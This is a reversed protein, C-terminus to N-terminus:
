LDLHREPRMRIHLVRMILLTDDRDQYYINHSGVRTRRLPGIPHSYPTGSEPYRAIEALKADIDNAYEDRQAPGWHELTFHLIEAVDARARDTLELRRSSPM